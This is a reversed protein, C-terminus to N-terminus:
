EEWYRYQGSSSLRITFTNTARKKGQKIRSQIFVEKSIREWTGDDKWKKFWHYVTSYPPLDKPLDAWKCGNVLQYFIGNLIQHKTWKPPRRSLYTKPLFPEIIKFEETTLDTSYAM